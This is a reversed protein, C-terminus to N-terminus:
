PTSRCSLCQQKSICGRRIHACESGGCFEQQASTARWSQRWGSIRCLRGESRPPPAHRPPVNRQPAALRRRAPIQQRRAVGLRPLRGPAALRRRDGPTRNAAPAVALLVPRDSASGCRAPQSSSRFRRTLRRARPLPARSVQRGLVNELAVKRRLLSKWLSGRSSRRLQMEWRSRRPM